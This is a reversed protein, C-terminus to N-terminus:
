SKFKCNCFKLVLLFKVIMQDFRMKCNLFSFGFSIFYKARWFDCLTTDSSPQSAGWNEQIEAMYSKECSWFHTRLFQQMCIYYTIIYHYQLNGYWIKEWKGNM